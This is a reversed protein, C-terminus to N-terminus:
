VSLVECQYLCGSQSTVVWMQDSLDDTQAARRSGGITQPLEARSIDSVLAACFESPSCFEKPTNPKKHRIYNFFNTCSMDSKMRFVRNRDQVMAGCRGTRQPTTRTTGAKKVVISALRSATGDSRGEGKMRSEGPSGATPQLSPRPESQVCGAIDRDMALAVIELRDHRDVQQQTPHEHGPDERQDPREVRGLRRLGARGSLRAPGPMAPGFFRDFRNQQLAFDCM